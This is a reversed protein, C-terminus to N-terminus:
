FYVLSAYLNEVEYIVSIFGLELILLIFVYIFFIRSKCRFDRSANSCGYYYKSNSSSWLENILSGGNKKLIFCLYESLFMM